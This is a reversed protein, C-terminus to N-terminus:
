PGQPAATRTPPPLGAPAQQEGARTGRWHKLSLLLAVLRAGHISDRATVLSEAATLPKTSMLYTIYGLALAHVIPGAGPIMFAGMASGFRASWFLRRMRGWGMDMTPRTELSERVAQEGTEIQQAVERMRSQFEGAAESVKTSATRVRDEWDAMEKLAKETRKTAEKLEKATLDKHSLTREIEADSADALNKLTTERGLLENLAAKAQATSGSAMLTKMDEPLKFWQERLKKFSVLGSQPDVALEMLRRWWGFRYAEQQPEASLLLVRKAMSVDAQEAFPFIKGFAQVPRVGKRFLPNKIEAAFDQKAGFFARAASGLAATKEDAGELATILQDLAGVATRYLELNGKPAGYPPALTAMRAYLDSLKSFEIRDDGAGGPDPVPMHFELQGNGADVAALGLPEALELILKKEELTYARPPLSNLFRTIAARVPQLPGDSLSVGIGAADAAKDREAYLHKVLASLRRLVAKVGGARPGYGEVKEVKLERLQKGVQARSPMDGPLDLVDKFEGPAIGPPPQEIRTAAAATHADSAAQARREAVSQLRRASAVERQRHALQETAERLTAEADDWIGHADRARALASRLRTRAAAATARYTEVVAPYVGGAAQVQRYAASGIKYVDKAGYYAALLGEALDGTSESQTLHTVLAPVGWLMFMTAPAAEVLGVSMLDAITFATEVVGHPIPEPYVPAGRGGFITREQYRQRAIQTPTRSTLGM